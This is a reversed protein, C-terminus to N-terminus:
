IASSYFVHLVLRTYFQSIVRGIYMGMQIHKPSYLPSFFVFEAKITWVRARALLM